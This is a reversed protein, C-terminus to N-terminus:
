EATNATTSLVPLAADASDLARLQRDQTRFVSWQDYTSLKKDCVNLPIAFALFWATPFDQAEDLQWLKESRRQPLNNSRKLSSLNGQGVKWERQRQKLQTSHQRLTLQCLKVVRRQRWSHTTKDATMPPVFLTTKERKEFKGRTQVEHM